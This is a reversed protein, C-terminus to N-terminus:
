LYRIVEENLTREKALSRNYAKDEATLPKHKSTKRPTQSNAHCKAIGLYGSDCM